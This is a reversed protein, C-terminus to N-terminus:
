TTSIRISAPVESLADVGERMTEYLARRSVNRLAHAHHTAPGRGAPRASPERRPEAGGEPATGILHLISSRPRADGRAALCTQKCRRPTLSRLV